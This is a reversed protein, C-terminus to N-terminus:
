QNEEVKSVFMSGTPTHIYLFTYQELRAVTNRIQKSELYGIGGIRKLDNEDGFRFFFLHHPMDYM